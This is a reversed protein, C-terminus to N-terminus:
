RKGLLDISTDALTADATAPGTITLIDGVAFTVDAAFTLAATTGSASFVATGISTGNKKLTLTTSGTAATGATVFSGPLNQPLTFARTAKLRLLLQNNSMPGPVFVHLDNPENIGGIDRVFLGNATGDTYVLYTRGPSLTIVTSGSTLTFTNTNNSDSEFLTLGRKLVPVTINRGTTTCNIARFLVASRYQLATMLISGSTLDLSTIETIAADFKGMADNIPVEPSAQNTSLQTLNLNNSM